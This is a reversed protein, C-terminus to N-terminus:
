IEILHELEFCWDSELHKFYDARTEDFDSPLFITNRNSVCFRLFDLNELIIEVGDEETFQTDEVIKDFNIKYLKM